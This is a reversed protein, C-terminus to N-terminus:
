CYEGSKSRKPNKKYAWIESWSDIKVVCIPNDYVDDSLHNQNITQGSLIIEKVQKEYLVAENDTFSVGITIEYDNENTNEIRFRSETLGSSTEECSVPIIKLGMLVDDTNELVMMPSPSEGNMSDIGLLENKPVFFLTGFIVSISIIIILFKKSLM